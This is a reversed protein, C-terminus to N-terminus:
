FFILFNFFYQISFNKCFKKPFNDQKNIDGFFSFSNFEKVNNCACKYSFSIKTICVFDWFFELFNINRNTLFLKIWEFLHPFFDMFFYFSDFSKKSFVKILKKVGNNENQFFKKLCDFVKDEFKNLDFDTIKLSLIKEKLSSNEL